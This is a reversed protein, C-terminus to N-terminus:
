PRQGLTKNKVALQLPVVTPSAAGVYEFISNVSNDTTWVNGSADMAIGVEGTAGASIYGGPPSIPSGSASLRSVSGDTNATWVTNGGDVAVASVDAPTAYGAGSLPTGASNLESVSAGSFNAVWADGTADIAIGYPTSIGGGSYGTVNAPTGGNSFKSVSSSRGRNAIWVNQSADVAIAYPIDLNGGTFQAMPSGAPNFKTVTNNENATFVNGLADLAIAVPQSMGTATYGSVSLPSGNAAHKSVSAIGENASWVNGSLDVAVAYPYSLGGGSFGNSGSLPEGTPSFESLTGPDVANPVWINGSGDVAPLQPANLGGGTYEISLTWDAPAGSINPQFAAKSPQLTYLKAVNNGPNLAIDLLASLTDTPASGGPPTALSFLQPCATDITMDVCAAVINALTNIMAQPVTGNGAPTTARALGSSVDILNAVTSFANVLGRVNTTGTGVATSGSTMFQALAYVSAVSSVESVDVNMGNGLNGCNGLASMLVAENNSGSGANGGKAVLYIQADASPCTFGNAISFRGNSDTTVTGSGSLLVAGSGYGSTGAAYLNVTSGVVPQQGGHVMGTLALGAVSGGLAPAVGGSSSGSGCGALALSAGLGFAVGFGRLSVHFSM